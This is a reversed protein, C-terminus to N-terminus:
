VEYFNLSASLESLYIGRLTTFVYGQIFAVAIELFFLVLGGGLIFILRALTNGGGNVLRILLHGAV